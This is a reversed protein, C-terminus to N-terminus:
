VGVEHEAAMPEVLYADRDEETLQDGLPLPPMISLADLPWISPASSPAPSVPLAGQTAPPAPPLFALARRPARLVRRAVIGGALMAVLVAPALTLTDFVASGIATGLHLTTTDVGPPPATMTFPSAQMFVSGVSAILYLAWGVCAALMAASVGAWRSGIHRAVTRAASAYAIQALAFTCLSAGLFLLWIASVTLAGATPTQCLASSPNERLCGQYATYQSTYSIIQQQSLAIALAVGVVELAGLLGGVVGFALGYALL